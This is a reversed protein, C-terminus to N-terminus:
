EIKKEVIGCQCNLMWIRLTMYVRSSCASTLNAGNLRRFLLVPVKRAPVATTAEADDVYANAMPMPLAELASGRMVSGAPYAKPDERRKAEKWYFGSLRLLEREQRESLIAVSM